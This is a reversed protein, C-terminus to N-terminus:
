DLSCLVVSLVWAKSHSMWPESGLGLVGQRHFEEGEAEEDTLHLYFRSQMFATLTIFDAM